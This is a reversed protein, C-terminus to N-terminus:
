NQRCRAKLHGSLLRWFMRTQSISCMSCSKEAATTTTIAQFSFFPNIAFILFHKMCSLLNMICQAEQMLLTISRPFMHIDYSFNHEQQLCMGGGRSFATHEQLQLLYPFSTQDFLNERKRYSSLMLGHNKPWHVDNM